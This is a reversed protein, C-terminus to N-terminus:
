AIWEIKYLSLKQLRIIVTVQEGKSPKQSVEIIIFHM